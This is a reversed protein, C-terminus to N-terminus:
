FFYRLAIRTRTGTTDLESDTRRVTVNDFPGVTRTTSKGDLDRIYYSYELALHINDLLEYEVGFSPGWEMGSLDRDVSFTESRISTESETYNARMGILLLWNDRLEPTWFAGIGYETLEAKNKSVTAPTGFVPVPSGDAFTQSFVQDEELEDELRSLEAEVRIQPTVQWPIYFSTVDSRITAGIGVEAASHAAGGVLLMGALVHMKRM